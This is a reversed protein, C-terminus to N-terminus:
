EGFIYRRVPDWACGGHEVPWNPASWGQEHLIVHWRFVDKKELRLGRQRKDQLDRPLNDKIFTRVEDQFVTHETSFQLDM